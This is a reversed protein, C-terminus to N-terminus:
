IGADTNQNDTSNEDSGTQGEPMEPREGEPMQSMDPMEDEPMQSMDPAEGEPMEGGQFNNGPGGQMMGGGQMTDVSGGAQIIMSDATFSQSKSGGEYSGGEYYGHFETGGTITGGTLVTYAADQVIDASSFLLNTYSEAAEFALIVTGDEATIGITDGANAAGLLVAYQTDESESPSSNSGGTALITGGTIVIENQDCDLGCEPQQAGFALVLGGNITLTGNSDIGDGSAAKAYITGGNITIAEAANIGDDECEISITGGNITVALEAELGEYCSTVEINGDDVTLDDNAHIGDSVGSLVWTGGEVYVSDSGKIAHKYNGSVTVTGSGTLYLDDKSSIAGSGDTEGEDNTAYESGDSLFNETGEASEITLSEANEGYIAAGDTNTLTVGNLVIKVDGDADVIVAGDESSGELVYAGAETITVTGDEVSAGSGDVECEDGFTITAMTEYEKEEESSTQADSEKESEASAKESTAGCGALCTLSVAGILGTLCIVNKVKM